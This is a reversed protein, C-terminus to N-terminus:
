GGGSEGREHHDRRDAVGMGVAAINELAGLLAEGFPRSIVVLSAKSRDL